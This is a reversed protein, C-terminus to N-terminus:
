DGSAQHYYLTIYLWYKLKHMIHVILSKLGDEVILLHKTRQHILFYGGSVCREM